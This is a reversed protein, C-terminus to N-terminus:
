PEVPRPYERASSLDWTEAGVLATPDRRLLAYEAPSIEAILTHFPVEQSPAFGFAEVSGTTPATANVELLRVVPEGSPTAPTSLVFVRELGPEIRFHWRILDDLPQSTSPNSVFEV